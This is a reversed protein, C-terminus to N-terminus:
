FDDALVSSDHVELDLLMSRKPLEHGCIAIPGSEVDLVHPETEITLRDVLRVRRCSEIHLVIVGYVNELLLNATATLFVLLRHEEKSTGVHRWLLDFVASYM